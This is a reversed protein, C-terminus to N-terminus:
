GGDNDDDCISPSRSFGTLCINVLPSEPHVTYPYENEFCFTLFLGVQEPSAPAGKQEKFTDPKVGSEAWILQYVRTPRGPIKGSHASLLPFAFM